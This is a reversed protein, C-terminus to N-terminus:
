LEPLSFSRGKPIPTNCNPCKDLHMSLIGGCNDCRWLQEEQELFAEMGHKQIYVLNEQMSRHYKEAYRTNLQKFRRCPKPCGMCLGYPNQMAIPCSRLTCQVCHKPKGESNGRCGNCPNKKRIYAYCLKCNIGCAAILEAKMEGM